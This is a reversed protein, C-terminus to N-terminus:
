YCQCGTISYQDALLLFRAPISDDENEATSWPWDSIGVTFMFDAQQIYWSLSMVSPHCLDFYHWNSVFITMCRYALCLLFHCYNWHSVLRTTQHLTHYDVQFNRRIVLWSNSLADLAHELISFLVPLICNTRKKVQEKPVHCLSYCTRKKNM